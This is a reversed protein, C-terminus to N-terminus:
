YCSNCFEDCFQRSREITVIEQAPLLQYFREFSLLIAVPKIRGRLGPRTAYRFESSTPKKTNAVPKTAAPRGRHGAGRLGQSRLLHSTGTRLISVTPVTKSYTSKRRGSLALTSRIGKRSRLKLPGCFTGPYARNTKTTSKASNTSAESLSTLIKLTGSSMGSSRSNMTSTCRLQSSSTNPSCTPSAAM